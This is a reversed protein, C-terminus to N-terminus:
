RGTSGASADTRPGPSSSRGHACRCGRTVQPGASCRATRACTPSPAHKLGASAPSSPRASGARCREPVTGHQQAASLVAAARSRRNTHLKEGDGKPLSFLNQRVAEMRLHQSIIHESRLKAIGRRQRGGAQPGLACASREIRAQRCDTCRCSRSWARAWARPRQAGAAPRQVRSRAAPTLTLSAHFWRAQAPDAVAPRPRVGDAQRDAAGQGTAPPRTGLPATPTSIAPRALIAVSRRATACPPATKGGSLSSSQSLM